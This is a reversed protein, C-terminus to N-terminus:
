ADKSGTYRSSLTRKQTEFSGKKSVTWRDGVQELVIFYHDVICDMIAYVLYDPGMKRVQGKSARIRERLPRLVDSPTEQFSLVWSPGLILSIQEDVLKNKSSISLMRVVMYVYDDYDEMKPRQNPDVIDELVLPHIGFKEGISKIIVEEHIGTINLWTVTSTDTFRTIDKIGKLKTEKFTTRSFEILELDVKHSPKKESYVVTGPPQGAKKTAFSTLKNLEKQIDIGESMTVM